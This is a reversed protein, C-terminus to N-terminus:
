PIAVLEICYCGCNRKHVSSVVIRNTSAAASSIGTSTALIRLRRSFAEARTADINNHAESRRGSAAVSLGKNRYM